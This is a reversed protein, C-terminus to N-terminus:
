GRRKHWRANAAKKAAKTRGTATLNKSRAQGGRKGIESLYQNIAPTMRPM